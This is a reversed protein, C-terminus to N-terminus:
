ITTPNDEGTSVTIDGDVGTSTIVSEGDALFTYTVVTVGPSPSTPESATVFQGNSGDVQTVTANPDPNGPSYNGTATITVSQGPNLTSAMTVSRLKKRHRRHFFHWWTDCEIYDAM